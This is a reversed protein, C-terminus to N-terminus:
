LLAAPTRPYDTLRLTRYDHCCPEGDALDLTGSTLDFILSAITAAREAFPLDPQPHRCIGMPATSHDTLVRRIAAVDLVGRDTLAEAREGRALTDPKDRAYSDRVALYPDLCHNAHTLVGRDSRLEV